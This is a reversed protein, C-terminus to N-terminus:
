YKLLNCIKAMLYPIAGDFTVHNNNLIDFFRKSRNAEVILAANSPIIFKPKNDDACAPTFLDAKNKQNFNINCFLM